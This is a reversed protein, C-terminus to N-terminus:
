ENFCIIAHPKNCANPIYIHIQILITELTMNFIIVTIYYTKHIPQSPVIDLTLPRVM